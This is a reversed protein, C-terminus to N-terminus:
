RLKDRRLVYTFSKANIATGAKPIEIQVLWWARGAEKKAAGFRM